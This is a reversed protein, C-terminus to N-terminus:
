LHIQLRLLCELLLLLTATATAHDPKQWQCLRWHDEDADVDAEAVAVADADVYSHADAYHVRAFIAHLIAAAGCPRAKTVSLATSPRWRCWYWYRCRGIVYICRCKCRCFFRCWRLASSCLYYAPNCHSQMTQSKDGVFGSIHFIHIRGEWGWNCELHLSKNQHKTEEESLAKENKHQLVEKPIERVLNAFCNLLERSYPHLSTTNQTSSDNISM